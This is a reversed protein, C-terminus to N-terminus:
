DGNLKLITEETEELVVDTFDLDSLGTLWGSARWSMDFHRCEDQGILMSGEEEYRKRTEGWMNDECPLQDVPENNLSALTREKHTM